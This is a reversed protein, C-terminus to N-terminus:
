DAPGAMWVGIRGCGATVNKGLHLVEGAQLIPLFRTAEPGYVVRGVRGGMLLDVGQRRSHDPVEVWATEDALIPVARAEAEIRGRIAPALLGSSEPGYLEELRNLILSIMLEFPIPERRLFGVGSKKIRVPSLFEVVVPEPVLFPDIFLHLLDPTLAPTLRSDDRRSLLERAGDSGLRAVELVSWGTDAGAAVRSLGDRLSGIVWSYLNWAPGYLTIELLSRDAPGDAPPAYLAYPPRGTGSAAFLVGYPCREALHCLERPKPPRGQQTGQEGQCHPKGFVCFRRVLAAGLRRRLWPASALDRPGDVTGPPGGRRLEFELRLYAHM